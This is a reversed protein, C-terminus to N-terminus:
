PRVREGRDLLIKVDKGLEEIASTLKDIKGGFYWIAWIVGALQPASTILVELLKDTV